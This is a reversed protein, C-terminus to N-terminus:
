AAEEDELCEAFHLEKALNFAALMAESYSAMDGDDEEVYRANMEDRFLLWADEADHQRLFDLAIQEEADLGRFHTFTQEETTNPM